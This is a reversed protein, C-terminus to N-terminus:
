CIKTLQDLSSTGQFLPAQMYLEAFLCGLAFIDIPSNYNTSKLILEPARYRNKFYKKTPIFNLLFIHKGDPRFM